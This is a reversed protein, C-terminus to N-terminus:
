EFVISRIKNLQKTFRSKNIIYLHSMRILEEATYIELESISDVFALHKMLDLCDIVDSWESETIRQEIQNYWLLNDHIKWIDRKLRPADIIFLDDPKDWNQCRSRSLVSDRRIEFEIFTLHDFAIKLYENSTFTTM